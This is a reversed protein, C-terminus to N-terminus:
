GGINERPFFGFVFPRLFMVTALFIVVPVFAVRLSSSKRGFSHRSYIPNENQAKAAM